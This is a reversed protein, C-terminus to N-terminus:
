SYINKIYTHNLLFNSKGKTVKNEEILATYRRRLDEMELSINEVKHKHREIEDRFLIMQKQSHVSGGKRTQEANHSATIKMMLEDNELCVFM